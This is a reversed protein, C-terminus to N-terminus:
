LKGELGSNEDLGLTRRASVLATFYEDYRGLGTRITGIKGPLDGLSAVKKDLPEFSSAIRAAVEGHRTVYKEDHRLLFDKEARRV